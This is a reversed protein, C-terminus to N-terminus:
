WEDKVSASGEIGTAEGTAMRFEPDHISVPLSLIFSSAVELATLHLSPNDGSPVLETAEGTAMRFEPDDISVPSSLVFSSAVELVASHSLVFPVLLIRSTLLLLAISTQALFM